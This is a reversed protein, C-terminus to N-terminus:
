LKDLREAIAALVTLVTAMGGEAAPPATSKTPAAAPQTLTKTAKGM